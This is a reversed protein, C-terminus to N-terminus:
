TLLTTGNPAFAVCRGEREGIPITQLLRGHTPDWIRATRDASVSAALKGNRTVAVGYVHATHGMLRGIVNGNETDWVYITKDGSAILARRNDPMFVAQRASDHVDLDRIQRGTAFDWVIAKHDRDGGGSILKRNDPSLAVCLAWDAHRADLTRLEVAQDPEAQAPEDDESRAINCLTAGLSLQLLARRSLSPLDADHPM